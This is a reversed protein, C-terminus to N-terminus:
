MTYYNWQVNVIKKVTKKGDFKTTRRSKRGALRRRGGQKAVFIRALLIM